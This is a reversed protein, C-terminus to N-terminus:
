KKIEMPITVPFLQVNLHYVDSSNERVFIKHSEDMFQDIWKKFEAVKQTNMPISISQFQRLHNPITDIKETALLLNQKHYKRIAESPTESAIEFPECLQRFQPRLELVGLRELRSLAENAEQVSIGLRQSVWRPDSKAGKVKTLSLIALHYWDAILRFKDEQLHLSPRHSSKQDQNPQIWRNLLQKEEIPSLGLRTTVKQMTKLTIPRKGAMMQSLQAPSISLWRAFARLSFNPNATRRKQYETHLLEQAQKM